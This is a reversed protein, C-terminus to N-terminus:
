ATSRSLVKPKAPARAYLFVAFIGGLIAVIISAGYYAATEFSHALIETDDIYEFRLHWLEGYIMKDGHILRGLRLIVDDAGLWFLRGPHALSTQALLFSWGFVAFGFWFPRRDMSGYVAFIISATLCLLVSTAVISQSYLTPQLLALCVFSALSIFAMLMQLSVRM